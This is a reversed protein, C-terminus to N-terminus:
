EGKTFVVGGGDKASVKDILSQLANTGMDPKASYVRTKQAAIPLCAMLMVVIAFIRIMLKM